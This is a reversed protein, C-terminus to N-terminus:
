SGRIWLAKFAWSLKIPQWRLWILWKQLFPVDKRKMFEYENPFPEYKHHQCHNHFFYKVVLRQIIRKRNRMDRDRELEDRERNILTQPEKLAIGTNSARRENIRM